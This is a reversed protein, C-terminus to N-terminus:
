HTNVVSWANAGGKDFVSTLRQYAKAAPSKKVTKSVAQVDDVLSTPALTAQWDQTYLDFSTYNHAWAEAFAYAATKDTFKKAQLRARPSRSVVALARYPKLQDGTARSTFPDFAYIERGKLWYPNPLVNIGAIAGLAGGGSCVAKWTKDFKRTFDNQEQTQEDQYRPPKDIPLQFPNVIGGGFVGGAIEMGKLIASFAANAAKRFLWGGIGSTKPAFRDLIKSASVKTLYKPGFIEYFDYFDRLQAGVDSEDNVFDRIHRQDTGGATLPGKGKPFGRKEYEGRTVFPGYAQTGGSMASCMEQYAVGAKIRPREVPLDGGQGEKSGSCTGGARSTCAPHFVLHDADNVKVINLAENGVREPFSDVLYDNMSNMASIIKRARIATNFPNYKYNAIAFYAQARLAAAMRFVQFGTCAAQIFSGFIPVKGWTPCYPAFLPAPGLGDKGIYQALKAEIAGARAFLELLTAEYAVSTALVVTAQSSAVNNMAMINLYRAEWDAHVLAAADATDQTRQKDYIMQGTNLIWVIMYALAITLFLILPSLNGREDRHLRLLPNSIM